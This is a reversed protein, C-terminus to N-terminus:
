GTIGVKWPIRFSLCTSARIAYMFDKFHRNNFHICYRFYIIQIGVLPPLGPEEGEVMLPYANEVEVAYHRGKQQSPYEGDQNPQLQQPGASIDHVGFCVVLYERQM